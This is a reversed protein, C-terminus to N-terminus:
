AGLGAKALAILIGIIGTILAAAVTRVLWKNSEILENIKKEHDTVTSKLILIDKENDYTKKKAETFGDLKTEIVILRELIEQMTDKNDPM